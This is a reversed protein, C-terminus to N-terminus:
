AHCHPTNYPAFLPHLSAWAAPSLPGAKAAQRSALFTFASVMNHAQVRAMITMTLGQVLCRRTRACHPANKGGTRANVPM